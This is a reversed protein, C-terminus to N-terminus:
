FLTIKLKVNKAFSCIHNGIAYENNKPPEVALVDKQSPALDEPIERQHTKREPV